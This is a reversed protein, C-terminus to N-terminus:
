HIGGPYASRDEHQSTKFRQVPEVPLRRDEPPKGLRVTTAVRYRSHTVRPPQLNRYLLLSVFRLDDTRAQGQGEELGLLHHSISFVKETDDHSDNWLGVAPKVLTIALSCVLAM